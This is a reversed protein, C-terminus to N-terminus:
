PAPIRSRSCRWPTTSRSRAWNSRACGRL